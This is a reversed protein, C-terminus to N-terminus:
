LGPFFIATGGTFPEAYLDHEPIRPLIYPVLKQKGGYYTLPTRLQIANKM